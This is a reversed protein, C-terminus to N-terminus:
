CAGGRSKSPLVPLTINEECEAGNQAAPPRPPNGGSQKQAGPARNPNDRSCAGRSPISVSM